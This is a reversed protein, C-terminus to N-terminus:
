PPFYPLILLVSHFKGADRRQDLLRNLNERSATITALLIKREESDTSAERENEYSTIKAKLLAIEEDLTAM